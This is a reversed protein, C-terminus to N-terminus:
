KKTVPKLKLLISDCVTQPPAAFICLLYFLVVLLVCIFHYFFTFNIIVGFAMHIICLLNLVQADGKEIFRYNICPQLHLERKTKLPSPRDKIEEARDKRQLFSSNVQTLLSPPQSIILDKYSFEGEIVSDIFPM